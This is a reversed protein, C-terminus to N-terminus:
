SESQYLSIHSIGAPCGRGFIDGSRANRGEHVIQFGMAGFEFAILLQPAPRYFLRFREPTGDPIEGLDDALRSFANQLPIWLLFHQTRM